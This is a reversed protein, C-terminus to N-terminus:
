ARATLKELFDIARDPWGEVDTGTGDGCGCKYEDCGACGCSGDVTYASLTQLLDSWGDDASSLLLDVHGADSAGQVFHRAKAMDDGINEGITYSWKSIEKVMDANSIHIEIKRM